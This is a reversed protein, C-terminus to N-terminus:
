GFDHADLVVSRVFCEEQPRMRRKDHTFFHESDTACIPNTGLECCHKNDAGGTTGTDVADNSGGRRGRSNWARSPPEGRRALGLLVDSNSCYQQKGGSILGRSLFKLSGGRHCFSGAIFNTIVHRHNRSEPLRRYTKSM